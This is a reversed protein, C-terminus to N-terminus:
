CPINSFWSMSVAEVAKLGTKIHNVEKELEVLSCPSMATLVFCATNCSSVPVSASINVPGDDPIKGRAGAGFWICLPPLFLYM